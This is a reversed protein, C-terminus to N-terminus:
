SKHPTTVFNTVICMELIDELQCGYQNDLLIWKLLHVSLYWLLENLSLGMDNGNRHYM